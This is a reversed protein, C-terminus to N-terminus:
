GLYTSSQSLLACQHGCLSVDRLSCRGVAHLYCRRYRASVGGSATPSKFPEPTRILPEVAKDFERTRHMFTEPQATQTGVIEIRESSPMILLRVFVRRHSVILTPQKVPLRCYQLSVKLRSRANQHCRSATPPFNKRQAADSEPRVSKLATRM